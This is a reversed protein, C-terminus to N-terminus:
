IFHSQLRKYLNNNTAITMTITVIANTHILSIRQADRERERETYKRKAEGIRLNKKVVSQQTIKRM